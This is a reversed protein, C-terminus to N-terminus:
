EQSTRAFINPDSSVSPIRHSMPMHTITNGLQGPGKQCEVRSVPGNYMFVDNVVTSHNYIVVLDKVNPGLHPHCIIAIVSFQAIKCRPHLMALHLVVVKRSNDMSDCALYFLLKGM